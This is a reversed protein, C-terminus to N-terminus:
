RGVPQRERPATRRSRFPSSRQARKSATPSQIMEPQAAVPPPRTWQEDVDSVIEGGFHNVLAEVAQTKDDPFHGALVTEDGASETGPAGLPAIAVDTDSLRFADHLADLAAAARERDQFRAALVRM